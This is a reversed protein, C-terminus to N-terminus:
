TLGLSLLVADEVPDAYYRPRRGTKRFGFSQYMALAPQNSARVELVIERVGELKLKEVVVDMLQKGTGRRQERAAVAITELEAQLGIACAVAFGAVIGTELDEAVLCVRRPVSNEDLATLYAILPWHPADKLSQEIVVVRDLDAREMRRIRTEQTNM